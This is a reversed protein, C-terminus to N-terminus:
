PHRYQVYENYAKIIAAFFLSGQLTYGAKTFHVGDSQLLKGKKWHDAAHKGGAVEYLDWYAWGNKECTEIIKRRVMEIGPNRRTRKKYFDATTTFIFRTQPNHRKLKESFKNLHDEFQPDLYPYEIAENTGLSIVILDPLLLSTQSFFQNAVAYHRFKAGNGGVSHYLVGPKQNELSLGFLTFQNQNPLPALCQLELTNVPYPLLVTLANPLGNWIFSGAFALDQQASDRLAMNFSSSDKQYFLTVKNFAYNLGNQNITRISIKAHPQVTKLTMAGIGIPLAHDTFIIRKSEWLSPTSSYINMPENTRGVRGPFILGRGANGFEKQMLGRIESTLFDAQIHSDGIHLVSIIQNSQQKHVYLKEFFSALSTSNTIENKEYQIFSYENPQALAITDQAFGGIGSLLIYSIIAWKGM